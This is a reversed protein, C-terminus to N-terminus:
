MVNFTECLEITNSGTLHPCGATMELAKQMSEAELVSYGGAPNSGGDETTGDKGITWQRGVPNGGDVVAAGLTQFWSTWATMVQQQQEPTANEMSGDNGHYLLLYKAM